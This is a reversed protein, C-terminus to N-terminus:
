RDNQRGYGVWLVNEIIEEDTMDDSLMYNKRLYYCLRSDTMIGDEWNSMAKKDAEAESHKSKWNIRKAPPNM